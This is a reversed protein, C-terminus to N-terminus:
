AHTVIFVSIPNKSLVFIKLIIGPIYIYIFIVMYRFFCPVGNAILSRVRTHWVPRLQWVSGPESPVRTRSCAARMVRAYILLIKVQIPNNHFFYYRPDRAPKAFSRLETYPQLERIKFQGLQWRSFHVWLDFPRSVHSKKHYFKFSPSPMVGEIKRTLPGGELHIAGECM